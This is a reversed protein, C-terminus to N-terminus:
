FLPDALVQLARVIAQPGMMLDAHGIALAAAPMDLHDSTPEDQVITIGGAQAVAAIGKAGDWMVGSLVIAITREGYLESASLFLADVAPRWWGMRDASSLAIRNKPKVLLHQDPPAVYVTSAQMPGGDEAWKVRLATRWALVEPLRSPLTASLHQVVLIPLPFDAPLGSLIKRLAPIGGASGGIVVLSHALAPALHDPADSSLHLDLTAMHGGVSM